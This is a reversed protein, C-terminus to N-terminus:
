EIQALHVVVREDAAQCEAEDLTRNEHFQIAHCTEHVIVSATMILSGTETGIDITARGRNAPSTQFCGYGLSGCVPNPNIAAVHTCVKAYEEPMAQQLVGLARKMTLNSLETLSPRITIRCPTALDIWFFFKVVVFVFLGVGTAVALIRGTTM